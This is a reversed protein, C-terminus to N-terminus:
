EKKSEQNRDKKFKLIVEDKGIVGLEQRAVHEIFELDHRLRDIKRYLSRNEQVLRANEEVLSDRKSKLLNLDALGNDGFLISLFMLLLGVTALSLLIKQKSSM